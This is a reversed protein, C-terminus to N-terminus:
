RSWCDDITGTGSVGRVGASTLTLDGCRTDGAQPGSLNRTAQITFTTATTDTGIGTISLTYFGQPSAASALVDTLAGSAITATNYANNDAYYRELRNSLDTLAVIADARRSKQMQGLYAPVTITALIAAISIAVLVETLTFGHTQISKDPHRDVVIKSVVIM